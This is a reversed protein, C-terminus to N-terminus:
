VAKGHEGRGVDFVNDPEPAFRRRNCGSFNLCNLGNDPRSELAARMWKEAYTLSHTHLCPRKGIQFSNQDCRSSGVPEDNGYVEQLAGDRRFYVAGVDPRDSKIEM